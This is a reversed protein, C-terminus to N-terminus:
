TILCAEVGVYYAAVGSPTHQIKAHIELQKVVEAESKTEAVLDIQTVLTQGDKALLKSPLLPGTHTTLVSATATGHSFESEIGCREEM